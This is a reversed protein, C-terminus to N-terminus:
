GGFTFAYMEIGPSQAAIELLSNQFKTQNVLEYLAHGNITVEGNQVDKGSQDGIAEGNLTLTIKAPSGDLTGM